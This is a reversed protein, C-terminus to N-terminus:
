SVNTVPAPLWTRDTISPAQSKPWYMRLTNNFNGARAPVLKGAGAQM